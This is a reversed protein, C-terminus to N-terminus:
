PQWVPCPKAGSLQRHVFVRLVPHDADSSVVCDACGEVVGLRRDPTLRLQRGTVSPLERQGCCPRAIDAEIQAALWPMLCNKNYACFERMPAPEIRLQHRREATTHPSPEGGRRGASISRAKMARAPRARGQM